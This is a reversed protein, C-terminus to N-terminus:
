PTLHPSALNAFNNGLLHAADSHRRHQPPQPRYPGRYRAPAPLIPAPRDFNMLQPRQAQYKSAPKQDGSPPRDISLWHPVSSKQRYSGGEKSSSSRRPWNGRRQSQTPYQRSQPVLALFTEWYLALYSTRLSPRYSPCGLLAPSPPMVAGIKVRSSRTSCLGLRWARRTTAM